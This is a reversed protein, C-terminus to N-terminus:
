GRNISNHMFLYIILTAILFAIVTLLLTIADLRNFLEVAMDENVYFEQYIEEM